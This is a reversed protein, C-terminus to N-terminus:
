KSSSFLDITSSDSNDEDYKGQTSNSFLFSYFDNSCSLYFKTFTKTVEEKYYVHLLEMDIFKKVLQPPLSIGKSSCTSYSCNMVIFKKETFGSDSLSDANFSSYSKLTDSNSQTIKKTNQIPPQSSGSTFHSYVYYFIFGCAILAAFSFLYYKLLINGSEIADGSQYLEFVEKLKPIKDKGARHVMAMRSNIFVDYNFYKRNISVLQPKARYFFEAFAKYKSEILSLNQTILYVDHYLHRHYSLWWVLVTDKKDFYNHAEDIVFLSRYINFEKCKEILEEDTSKNKYMKHLETIQKYFEDFDFKFTNKVKDYKFENINTYCNVFDKKIDRKAKESDSFNNFITYVAKYSKGSGPVGTLYVLM